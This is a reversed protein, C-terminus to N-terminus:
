VKGKQQHSADSDNDWVTFRKDLQAIHIQEGDLDLVVRYRDGTEIDVVNYSAGLRGSLGIWQAAHDIKEFSRRVNGNDARFKM